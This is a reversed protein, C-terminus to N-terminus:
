EGARALAYGEAEVAREFAALSATEFLCRLPVNIQLSSRIKEIVQLALVSHGGREFFNDGMGVREVGLVERWIQALNRALETAPEIYEVRSAEPEPLARQDVKGNQTLPIEALAVFEAPLMYEPLTRRLHDRLEAAPQALSAAAGGDRPVLYAVLQKGRPGDQAIVVADRVAPHERLRAEIEGLEIRFGRIKVQHDIRGLYDLRGNEGWRALDGSRYMRQGPAFPNAVFREATLGPRHLYGRALGEGAIYLEGPVGAPVLRLAADLVYLQTNWIPRGISVSSVERLDGAIEEVSCGVTAETPGFENI